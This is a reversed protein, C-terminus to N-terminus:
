KIDRTKTYLRIFEDTLDPYGDEGTIEDCEIFKHIDYDIDSILARLASEVANLDLAEAKAAAVVAAIGANHM